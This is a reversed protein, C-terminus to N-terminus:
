DPYWGGPGKTTDYVIIHNLIKVVRGTFGDAYLNESISHDTNYDTVSYLLAKYRVTGGDDYTIKRPVLCVVLALVVVAIIIYKAKKRM